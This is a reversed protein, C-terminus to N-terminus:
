PVVVADMIKETFSVQLAHTWPQPNISRRVIIMDLSPIVMTFQSGFGAMYYADSPVSPGLLSSGGRNTWFLHGYRQHSGPDDMFIDSQFATGGLVSAWGTLTSVTSARLIQQPGSGDDWVGDRLLLYALRGLDRANVFAGSAARTHGSFSGFTLSQVGIPGAIRTDFFAGMTQGTIDEVILSLLDVAASTYAFVTGAPAV